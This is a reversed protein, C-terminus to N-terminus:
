KQTGFDLLHIFHIFSRSVQVLSGFKGTKLTMGFDSYSIWSKMKVLDEFGNMVLKRKGM